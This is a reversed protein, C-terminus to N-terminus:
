NEAPVVALVKMSASYEVDAARRIVASELYELVFIIVAGLFVGALVGIITNVTRNPFALSAQAADQLEGRVRDQQLSEQNLDNNIRIFMNAWATAVRNAVDPDEMRVEFRVTLNDRVAEFDTRSRLFAPEMDLQLQDIVEQARENSQLYAVRNNLLQVAAQTLGFDTRSPTMLVSVTSRYMPTITASFFFAGVGILAGLLIMIWGRRLIISGYDALNM